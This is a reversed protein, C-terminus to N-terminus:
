TKFHISDTDRDMPKRHTPMYMSIRPQKDPRGTKLLRQLKERNTETIRAM